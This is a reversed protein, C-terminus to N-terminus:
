EFTVVALAAGNQSGEEVIVSFVYTGREWTCGALGPILDLRYVGQRQDDKRLQSVSVRCGQAPLQEAFVAFNSGELDGILGASSQVTVYVAVVNANRPAATLIAAEANILLSSGSQAGSPVAQLLAGVAIIGLIIFVGWLASSKKQFTSSM